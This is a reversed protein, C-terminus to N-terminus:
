LPDGRRLLEALGEVQDILSQVVVERAAQEPVDLPFLLRGDLEYYRFPHEAGALSPGFVEASRRHGRMWLLSEEFRGAYQEDYAISCTMHGALTGFRRYYDPGPTARFGKTDFLGMESLRRGVDDVISRLLAKREESGPAGPRFPEELRRCLGRLQWVEHAGREEGAEELRGELHELLFSWSVYALRRAESTRAALWNPPEGTEDALEFGVRLCRAGLEKWLHDCREEPAVFLVMGNRNAPLRDLYGAPQNPTLPAWFKSEVLLVGTEDATAGVLDPVSGHQMHVQTSFVLDRPPHYGMTSVVEAFADHAAGYRRLLYLLSETALNEFQSTLGPAVHALLSYRDLFM